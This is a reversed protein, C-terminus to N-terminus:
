TSLRIARSPQAARGAEGVLRGFELFDEKRPSTERWALGIARSPARGSFPVVALGERNRTEVPLAMEPLITIGYGNRVLQVITALSTAGFEAVDDAGVQSCLNLAQDRLCHGEELLLLREGKLEDLNVAAASALRHGAPTLLYFRDEFLGAQEVGSQIVPLALLALDIHRGALAELLTTTKSERVQLELEPFDKRLLPLIAPLLYPGVSPIIGLRLPGTLVRGRHRAFDMLDEVATLIATARGAIDSGTDTLGTSSKGRAVLEVGLQAELEQIQLSLAPQSVACESAARGFNRHRSLSEFYRLQRLTIM